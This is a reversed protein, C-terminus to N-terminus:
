FEDVLDFMHVSIDVDRDTGEEFVMSGFGLLGM